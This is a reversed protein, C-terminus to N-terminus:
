SKQYQEKERAYPPPKCDVVATNITASDTPTPSAGMASVMSVKESGLSRDGFVKISDKGGTAKSLEDSMYKVAMRTSM